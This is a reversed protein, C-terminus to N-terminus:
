SLNAIIVPSRTPERSGGVPESTVMIAKAGAVSGPVGVMASGTSTVTFLANTPEAKTGRQVWVEYVRGPETQPMNAISLEAHGGDLRVSASARPALVQARVVRSGGGSGGGGLAVVVVLIVAAAAGALAFACAALVFAGFSAAGARGAMQLFRKRDLDDRVLREVIGAPQPASEQTPPSSMKSVEAKQM